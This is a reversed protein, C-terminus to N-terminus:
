KNTLFNLIGRMISARQQKDMICEFPFGMTFSRYDVGQYAVAASTDDNLYVMAPFATGVPMLVDTSTAAYHRDNLQSYIRFDLGLGSVASNNLRNPRIYEVKLLERLM